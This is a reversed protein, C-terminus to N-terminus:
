KATRWEDLQKQKEAIIKDLGAAKLKENFEQLSKEPDLTGTELGARYQNLVNTAAAIETKVPDPNFTFGFAPSLRAKRNFKDMKDWYDPGNAEWPYTLFNNGIMFAGFTYGSKTVGEPLAIVGEDKVIYHKGEIGNAFLNMIEADTYLLNMFEMAKEPTQSNKPISMMFTTARSTTLQPETFRVAVMEYGTLRSEQSEYGPKMHSFYGFGKGSKVISASDDDSTAADKMIYGALFWERVLDISKKYDSHDFMNEVEGDGEMSLVGLSDGLGDFYQESIRGAPTQLKTNAMPYIGPENDLITQFVPGLDEYTKIQTLDINYKEVLDKRMIFGYDIAWDKISPVSYSIGNIKTAELMHEPVVDIIGQGHSVLLDDLPIIQGKVAQSGFNMAGMTIILDLKENGTMMLNTQQQWASYGIGLLNVRASIKEQTIKNIEEEVLKLDDVNGGTLMALTLEVVEEDDENSEAGTSATKEGSACGALAVIFALVFISLLKLSKLRKVM